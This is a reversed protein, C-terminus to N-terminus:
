DSLSDIVHVGSEALGPGAFRCIVDRIEVVKAVQQKMQPIEKLGEELKDCHEILTECQAKDGNPEPEVKPEPKKPEAEVKKKSVPSAMISRKNASRRGRKETKKQYFDEFEFKLDMSACVRAPVVEIGKSKCNAQMAAHFNPKGFGSGIDLFSSGNKGCLNYDNVDFPLDHVLSSLLEDQLIMQGAHQLVTIL